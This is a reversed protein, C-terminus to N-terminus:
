DAFRKGQRALAEQMYERLASITRPSLTTVDIHLDTNGTELEPHGTTIIKIM